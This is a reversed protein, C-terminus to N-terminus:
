RVDELIKSLNKNRNEKLLYRVYGPWVCGEKGNVGLYIICPNQSSNDPTPNYRHGLVEFTERKYFDATHLNSDFKIKHGVPFCRILTEMSLVNLEERSFYKVGNSIIM